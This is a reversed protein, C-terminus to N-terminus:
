NLGELKVIPSLRSFEVRGSLQLNSKAVGHLTEHYKGFLRDAIPQEANFLIKLERTVHSGRAHQHHYAHRFPNSRHFPDLVLPAGASTRVTKGVGLAGELLHSFHYDEELTSPRLQSSIVYNMVDTESTLSVPPVAVAAKAVLDAQATPDLKRPMDYAVSEIRLGVRKGDREEIGEFYPIQAHDVVLVPEPTIEPDASKTQMVTVQSLLRVTGSQDSHLILRLPAVGATPRVSAGNEVISTVGDVIVEGVWLGAVSAADSKPLLDASNQLAGQDASIPLWVANGGGTHLRYLNTRGVTGTSWNRMAGMTLVRSSGANVTEGLAASQGDNAASDIQNGRIYRLSDQKPHVVHLELNGSGPAATILEMKPTANGVPDLNTFVIEQLDLMLDDPALDVSLADVPGGFHFEGVIAGDFDVAVPGMYVSPGSSFIWYATNAEILDSPSVREWNGNVALAYIQSVPHAGNSAAFFDHFSISEVIGFGILNYRDPIWSPRYFRATGSIQLPFTPTNDAVYLLFPRSGRVMVLDTLDAPDDRLYLEWDAQNYIATGETQNGFFEALGALQTPTAVRQISADTFVDQPAKAQGIRSDNASLVEDDAPDLIGNRIMDGVEYVPEVELWVANWGAKLQIEQTARQAQASQVLFLTLLSSLAYRAVMRHRSTRRPAHGILNELRLARLISKYVIM